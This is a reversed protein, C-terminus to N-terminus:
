ILSAYLELLIKEQSQWNYTSEVAAICQAQMEDLQQPQTLLTHMAKAIAEPSTLDVAIGAKFKDLVDTYIHSDCCIFPIGLALYEFFKREHSVLIPAPQNKLCIAM